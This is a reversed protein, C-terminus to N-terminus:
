GSRYALTGATPLGGSDGSAAKDQQYKDLSLFQQKQKKMGCHPSEEREFSFSDSPLLLSHPKGHNQLHTQLRSRLVRSATESSGATETERSGVWGQCPSDLSQKGMVYGPNVMKPAQKRTSRRARSFHFAKGSRIM